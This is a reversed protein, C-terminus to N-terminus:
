TLALEDEPGGDPVKRKCFDCETSATFRMRAFKHGVRIELPEDEDEPDSEDVEMRELTAATTSDEEPLSDADGGDAAGAGFVFSLLCDGFCFTPEFANFVSLEHDM